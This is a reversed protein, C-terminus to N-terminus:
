GCRLAAYKEARRRPEQLYRRIAHQRCYAFFEPNSLYNNLWVHIGAETDGGFEQALQARVKGYLEDNRTLMTEM